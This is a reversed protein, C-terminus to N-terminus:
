ETMMVYYSMDDDEDFEDLEYADADYVDIEVNCEEALKELKERMDDSLYNYHLDLEKINPYKKLNDLIIQGGKDTLTGNAISISEVQNIYKSAFLIQTIEDQIASNELGIHKLNPFDSKDIMDKIDDIDGTFGSDEVGIYLTLRELLPLKADRISEIVNKGLGASVIDFERLNEHVINGLELGQSGKIGFMELAPMAKWFKSYDGQIIWSPEGDDRDIDGMFLTKVHSFKGQNKVIESEVIGDILPQVSELGVAGWCGIIINSFNPLEKDNLIENLLTAANRENETYDDYEYFYYRAEKDGYVSGDEILFGKVEDRFDYDLSGIDM